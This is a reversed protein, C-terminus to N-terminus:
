NQSFFLARALQPSIESRYIAILQPNTATSRLDLAGALLRQDRLKLHAATFTDLPPTRAPTTFIPMGCRKDPRDVPEPVASESGTAACSHRGGQDHPRGGISHAPCGSRRLPRTDRAPQFNRDHDCGKHPSLCRRITPACVTAFYHRAAHLQRYIFIAPLFLGARACTRTLPCVLDNDPAPSSRPGPEPGRVNPM